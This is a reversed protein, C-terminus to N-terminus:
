LLIVRQGPDTNQKPIIEDMASSSPVRCRM